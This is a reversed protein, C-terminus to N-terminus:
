GERQYDVSKGICSNIMKLLIAQPTKLTCGLARIKSAVSSHQRNTIYTLRRWECRMRPPLHKVLIYGGDIYVDHTYPDWEVTHIKGSGSKVTGIKKAAM